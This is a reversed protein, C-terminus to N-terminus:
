ATRVLKRSALAHKSSATHESLGAIAVTGGTREYDRKFQNLNDMASHDILTVKSMNITLHKGTPVKDLTKKLSFFNSFLSIGEVYVTYDNGEQETKAKAVFWHPGLGAGNVVHLVIKCAIGVGVGVLLDTALVAVITVVYLFLQEPGIEYMHKFERPSALRYGVMILLAALAAQPIMDIM